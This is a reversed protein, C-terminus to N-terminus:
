LVLSIGKVTKFIVGSNARSILNNMYKPSVESEHAKSEFTQRYMSVSSNHEETSLEPQQGAGLASPLPVTSSM